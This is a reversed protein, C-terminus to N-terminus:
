KLKTNESADVVQKYTLAVMERNLDQKKTEIIRINDIIETSSLEVKANVCNDELIVDTGLKRNKLLEKKKALEEQENTIIERYRLLNETIM